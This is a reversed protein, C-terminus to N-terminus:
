FAVIPMCHSVRRSSLSFQTSRKDHHYELRGTVYTFIMCVVIFRVDSRRENNLLQRLDSALTNVTLERQHAVFFGRVSHAGSPSMIYRKMGNWVQPNTRPGTLVLTHYFGAAIACVNKDKLADVPLPRPCDIDRGRGLQGHNGRGFSYVRGESSLLM